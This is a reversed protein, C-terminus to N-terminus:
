SKMWSISDKSSHKTGTVVFFTKEKDDSKEEMLVYELDYFALEKENFNELTSEAIAKADGITAGNTFVIDFYIIKGEIRLSAEKVKEQEELKKSIEKLSSKKIEVKNIGDLRNGYKNSTSITMSLLMLCLVVFLIFALLCIVALLKHHLMLDKIKIFFKKM